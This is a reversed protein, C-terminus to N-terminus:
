EVVDALQDSKYQGQPSVEEAKIYQEAGSRCLAACYITWRHPLDCVGNVLLEGARIKLGSKLSFLTQQCSPDIHVIAVGHQSLLARTFRLHRAALAQRKANM